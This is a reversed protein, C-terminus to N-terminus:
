LGFGHAANEANVIAVDINLDRKVGSLHRRIAERGSRGVVDGCLLINVFAFELFWAIGRLLYFTMGPRPSAALGSDMNWLGTNMSEPSGRKARAGSHCVHLLPSNTPHLRR